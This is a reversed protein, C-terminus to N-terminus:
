NPDFFWMNSMSLLCTLHFVKELGKDEIDEIKEPNLEDELHVRENTCNNKYDRITGNERLDNLTKSRYDETWKCIPLETILIHTDNTKAIIGHSTYKNSSSGNQKIEGYFGRYWPHIPITSGGEIKRKLYEIIDTPNFNPISTSWGTGIGKAGNVLIM